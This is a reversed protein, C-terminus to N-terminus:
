INHYTNKKILVRLQLFSPTPLLLQLVLVAHLSASIYGFTNIM